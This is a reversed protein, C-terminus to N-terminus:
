KKKVFLPMRKGTPFFIKGSSKSTTTDRESPPYIDGEIRIEDRGRKVLLTISRQKKLAADLQEQTQVTNGLVKLILDGQRLKMQAALSLPTVKHVELGAPTKVVPIWPETAQATPLGLFLAASIALVYLASPMNM